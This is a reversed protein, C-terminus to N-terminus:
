PPSVRGPGWAPVVCEGVCVRGLRYPFGSLSVTFSPSHAPFLPFSRSPLRSRESRSCVRPFSLCFGLGFRNGEPVGESRGGEEGELGVSPSPGPVTVSTPTDPPVLTSKRFSEKLGGSFSLVRLVLVFYDLCSM